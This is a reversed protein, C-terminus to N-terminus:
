SRFETKKFKERRALLDSARGLTARESDTLSEMGHSSIKELIVDVAEEERQVRAEYDERRRQFRKEAIQLRWTEVWRFFGFSDGIGVFRLYFYVTALSATYAVLGLPYPIALIALALVAILAWAEWKVKIGPLLMVNPYIVAFGAFASFHIMPMILPGRVDLNVPLLLSVALCALPPVIMLALYLLAFHMRGIFREVDRGFWCFMGMALLFWIHERAIDHYFTDSFVTWYKGQWFQVTSFVLESAMVSRLGFAFGLTCLIMSFVHLATILVTLDVPVGQVYTIPEYSWQSSPWSRQSM